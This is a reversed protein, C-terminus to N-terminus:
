RMPIDLPNKPAWTAAAAATAAALQEKQARRADAAFRARLFGEIAVMRHLLKIHEFSAGFWGGIFGLVLCCAFVAWLPLM